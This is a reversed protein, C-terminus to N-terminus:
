RKVRKGKLARKVRKGKRDKGGSFTGLELYRNM